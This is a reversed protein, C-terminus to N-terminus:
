AVFRRCVWSSCKVILIPSAFVLVLLWVSVICQWYCRWGGGGSPLLSQDMLWGFLMGVGTVAGAFLVAMLIQFRRRAVNNFM